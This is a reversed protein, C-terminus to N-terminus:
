KGFRGVLWAVALPNLHGDRLALLTGAIQLLLGDAGLAGHPSGSCSERWFQNLLRTVRLDSNFRRHLPGFNGDAPLGSDAGALSRLGEYPM